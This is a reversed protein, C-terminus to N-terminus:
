GPDHGVKRIESIEDMAVEAFTDMSPGRFGIWEKAIECARDLAKVYRHSRDIEEALQQRLSNIEKDQLKVAEILQGIEAERERLRQHKSPTM